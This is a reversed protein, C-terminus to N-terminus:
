SLIDKVAFHSQLQPLKVMARKETPERTDWMLEKLPFVNGRLAREARQEGLPLADAECYGKSV